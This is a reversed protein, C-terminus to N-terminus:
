LAARPRRPVSATSSGLAAQSSNMASTESMLRRMLAGRMAAVQGGDALWADALQFMDSLRPGKGGWSPALDTRAGEEILVVVADLNGSRIAVELPVRGAKWISTQDEAGFADVTDNLRVYGARIYERFLAGTAEALSEPWKSQIFAVAAYHKIDEQCCAVRQQLLERCYAMVFRSTDDATDPGAIWHIHRLAVAHRRVPNEVQSFKDQLTQIVGASTPSRTKSM